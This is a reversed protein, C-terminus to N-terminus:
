IVVKVSALASYVVTRHGDTRGDTRGDCSSFIDDRLCRRTTARPRTKQRWLNEHFQLQTTWMRAGFVHPHLFKRSKVSLHM